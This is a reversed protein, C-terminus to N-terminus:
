CQLRSPSKGGDEISLVVQELEGASLVTAHQGRQKETLLSEEPAPKGRSDVVHCVLHDERVEITHPITSAVSACAPTTEQPEPPQSTPNPELTVGAVATDLVDRTVPVEVTVPVIVTVKVVEPSASSCGVAILVM